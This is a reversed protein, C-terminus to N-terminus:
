ADHVRDGRSLSAGDSEFTFLRAPVEPLEAQPTGFPRRHLGVGYLAPAGDFAVEEMGAQVFWSRLEPRRDPESGGRTWLVYGGPSVFRPVTDIVPRVHEHALNGFVGCLLLVDVPLADAFSAVLGADACRVEVNGLRADRASQAARAALLPDREVLVARDVASPRTSLVSIVDRAEGACLSLLTPPHTGFADSPRCADSPRWADSPRCADSPRSADLADLVDGLRAKVVELRKSLSSAPDDYADHWAPWDSM